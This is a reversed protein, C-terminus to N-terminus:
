VVEVALYRFEESETPFKSYPRWHLEYEDRLTLPDRRKKTTGESARKAWAMRGTFRRGEHVRFDEDITGAGGVKWYAPDNTLLIAFGRSFENCDAVRRDDAIKEIRRIDRIFDYRGQDHASKDKLSFREGDNKTLLSRTRYKLEIAIGPTRLWIDLYRNAGGISFPRELRVADSTDQAIHWALAFRFDAESHFVPRQEALRELARHIDFRAM